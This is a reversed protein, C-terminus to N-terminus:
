ERGAGLGAQRRTARVLILTLVVVIAFLIWAMASAVGMKLYVFANHFLYLPYMLISNEPGGSANSSSGGAATTIIYVQTFYQFGNIISLVGQYVLVHAISPLTIRWLRMLPGAGDMAAAEYYSAPIDKLAALFILMTTGTGWLGILVLSWKTYSADILWNPQYLGLAGLVRDVLGFQPDLMWIWIMTSAVMPIISPLFFISRFASIGRFDRRLTSALGFAVALNLVTSAATYFLTNGLSKYFLPDAFVRRYNELGIWAPSRVPNVNTFSYYFSSALPYLSFALFGLIWPLAFLFGALDTRLQKTRAYRNM